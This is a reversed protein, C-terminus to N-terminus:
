DKILKSYIEKEDLKKTCFFWDKYDLNEKDEM